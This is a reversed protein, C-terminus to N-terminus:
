PAALGAAVISVGALQGDLHGLGARAADSLRPVGQMWRLATRLIQNETIDVTFEDYSVEIPVMQGPRRTIQDGIRIRGRVTRLSEDVTRYGQLVGPGLAARTLRVLSEALAPWLDDDPHALVTDDRWGPDRAYGLLFLLRTLGVKAKPRVEVQLGGMRVSGVRGTPVLRWGNREARAEVLRTGALVTAHDDDISVHRGDRDLEDFVILTPHTMARQHRGPGDATLDADSSPTEPEGAEPESEPSTPSILADGAPALTSHLSALGFREHVQARTIRGYYHEELLPLIDHKWIRALGAPTEAEPRMLYSPGIKFDRDTDEIAANLANLLAARDTEPGRTAAVFSALVDRVPPEDPHLEVFAFRRRMASDLLAISRDATNMTGIIFLNEPLSFAEEPCYQLQISKDRYELLFYLEGFVKALNARNMEDIILM